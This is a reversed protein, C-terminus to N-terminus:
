VVSKRDAEFSSGTEVAATSIEKIGDALAKIGTKIADSVLNAKLVDGFVSTEKSAEVVENGYEDISAACHDTSNEAEQMYAETKDMERHMEQLEAEANNLTTQYYKVKNGAYDYNTEADGLKKTLESVLKSQAELAESTTDSNNSMEEMEKRASNLATNLEEIKHAATDQMKSAADMAQRYVETKEAQLTVQKALIEHKKQLAELSNQNERFTTQCLKMESRLESQDTKIGKLAARYQSEGELVIKGGIKGSM